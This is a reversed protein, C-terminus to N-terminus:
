ICILSAYKNQANRVNAIQVESITCALAFNCADELIPGKVKVIQNCIKNLQTLGTYFNTIIEMVGDTTSWRLPFVAFHPDEM